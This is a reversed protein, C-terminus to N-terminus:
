GRKRTFRFWRVELNGGSEFIHESLELEPETPLVSKLGDIQRELMTAIKDSFYIFHLVDNTMLVEARQQKTIKVFLYSRILPGYVQKKRDSWQKLEKKLPMM